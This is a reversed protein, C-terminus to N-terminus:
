ICELKYRRTMFPSTSLQSSVCRLPFLYVFNNMYSYLRLIFVRPRCSACFSAHHSRPNPSYPSLALCRCRPDWCRASITCNIRDSFTHLIFFLVAHRHGLCLARDFGIWRFPCSTSDASPTPVLPTSSYRFLPSQQPIFPFSSGRPM